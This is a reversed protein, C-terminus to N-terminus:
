KFEPFPKIPFGLKNDLYSANAEASKSAYPISFKSPKDFSLASKLSIISSFYTEHKPVGIGNSSKLLHDADSGSRTIFVGINVPDCCEWLSGIESFSISPFLFAGLGTGEINSFVSTFLYYFQFEVTHIM